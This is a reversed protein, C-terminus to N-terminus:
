TSKRRGNLIQTTTTPWRSIAITYAIPRSGSVPNGSRAISIPGLHEGPGEQDRDGRGAIKFRWWLNPTEASAASAVRPISGHVNLWVARRTNGTPHDYVQKVGESM